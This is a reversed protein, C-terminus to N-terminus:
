SIGSPVNSMLYDRWLKIALVSRVVLLEKVFVVLQCLFLSDTLECLLLSHIRKIFVFYLTSSNGLIWRHWSLSIHITLEAPNVIELHFTRFIITLPVRHVFLEEVSWFVIVNGERIRGQGITLEEPLICWAVWNCVLTLDARCTESALRSRLALLINAHSPRVICSGEDKINVPRVLVSYM